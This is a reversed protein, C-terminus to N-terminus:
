ANARIDWIEKGITEEIYELDHRLQEERREEEARLQSSMKIKKIGELETEMDRRIVAFGRHISAEAEEVEKILLNHKRKTLNYYYMARMLLIVIAIALLLSLAGYIFQFSFRTSGFVIATTAVNVQVQASPPSEINGYKAQTWVIYRGSSLFESSSYFWDGKKDTVALYSSIDGSEGQLYVTIISGYVNHRGGVYFLDQNSINDSITTITPPSSRDQDTQAFVRQGFSLTLVAGLVFLVVLQGYRKQYMRLKELKKAIESNATAGLSRKHSVQLHRLYYKRSLYASALLLIILFLFGVWSRPMLFLLVGLSKPLINLRDKVERFNGAQDFARVIVDYKGESVEPIYPSTSEIFLSQSGGSGASTLSLPIIKLEYHDIGSNADTTEFFIVPRLSTTTKDPEIIFEFLAPESKDVRVAFNTVGGWIGDRHAKIHFYHIGDSINDYSINNKKPDPIDDPITTPEQNLIYSYSDTNTDSQWAFIASDSQYWKSQDPNTSSVVVPGQPPPLVLDYIAGSTNSLVNTAKGDNLLVKSKDTFKIVAKGTSKVRFTFTSILGQSVNLGPNPIAGRFSITGSINSFSPQGVWVGIVSKGISPSVIQLKDPPFSLDAEVANVTRGSTNVYVSVSFTDDVAYSGAVPSLYLSAGSESQAYLTSTLGLVFISIAILSFRKLQKSAKEEIVM